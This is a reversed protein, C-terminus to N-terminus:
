SEEDEDDDDDEEEETAYRFAGTPRILVWDRVARHLETKDKLKPVKPEADLQLLLGVWRVVHQLTRLGGHLGAVSKDRSLEPIMLGGVRRLVELKIAPQFSVLLENADYEVIIDIPEDPTIRSKLCSLLYKFSAGYTADSHM